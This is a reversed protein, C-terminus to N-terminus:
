ATARSRIRQNRELAERIAELAQQELKRIMEHSCGMEKALGRMTAEADSFYRERIVMVHRETLGTEPNMLVSLIEEVEIANLVTDETNANPDEIFDIGEATNGEDTQYSANLSKNSSSLLMIIREKEDDQVGEEIEVSSTDLGQAKLKAIEQKNMFFLQKFLRSGVRVVSWNEIVYKSVRGYVWPSAYASFRNGTDPDFKDAAIALGMMAEQLLDEYSFGVKQPTNKFVDRATKRALPLYAMIVDNRARVDKKNKYAKLLNQEEDYSLLKAKDNSM